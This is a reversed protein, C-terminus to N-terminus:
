SRRTANKDTKRERKKRELLCAAHKRLSGKHPESSASDYLM